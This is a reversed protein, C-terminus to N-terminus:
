LNDLLMMDRVPTIIADNKFISAHGSLEDDEVSTQSNKFKLFWQINNM